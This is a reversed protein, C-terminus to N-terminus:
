FSAESVDKTKPQGALLYLWWITNSKSCDRHGDDSVCLTDKVVRGHTVLGERRSGGVAARDEPLVV